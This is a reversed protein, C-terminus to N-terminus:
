TSEVLPNEDIINVDFTLVRAGKKKKRMRSM